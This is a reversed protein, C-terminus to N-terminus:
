HRRASDGNGRNDNNGHNNFSQGANRIGDTISKMAKGFDPAAKEFSRQVTMFARGCADLLANLDAKAKGAREPLNKYADELADYASYRGYQVGQAEPVKEPRAGSDPSCLAPPCASFISIVLVSKLAASKM